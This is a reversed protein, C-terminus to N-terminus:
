KHGGKNTKIFHKSFQSAYLITGGAVGVKASKKGLKELLAKVHEKITKDKIDTIKTSSIKQMYSSSSWFFIIPNKTNYGSYKKTMGIKFQVM